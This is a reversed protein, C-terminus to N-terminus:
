ISQDVFAASMFLVYYKGELCVYSQVAEAFM